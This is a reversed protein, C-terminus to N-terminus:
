SEPFPRYTCSGEGRLQEQSGASRSTSTIGLLGCCGGGSGGGGDRKEWGRGPSMPACARESDWGGKGGERRRRWGEGVRVGCGQSPLGRAQGGPSSAWTGVSESSATGPLVKLKCKGKFANVGFCFGGVM